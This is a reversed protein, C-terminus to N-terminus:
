VEKLVDMQEQLAASCEKEATLPSRLAAEGSSRSRSSFEAIGANKLFTGKSSDQSLVKNVVQLVRRSALFGEQPPEGLSAEDDTGVDEM